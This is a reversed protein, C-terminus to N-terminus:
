RDQAATMGDRHSFRGYLQMSAMALPRGTITDGCPAHPLERSIPNRPPNRVISRRHTQRFRQSAREGRGRGFAFAHATVRRDCDGDDARVVLDYVPM